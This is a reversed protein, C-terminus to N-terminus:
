LSECLAEDLYGVLPRVNLPSYASHSRVQGRFTALQDTRTFTAFYQGM